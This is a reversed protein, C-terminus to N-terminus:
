EKCLRDTDFLRSLSFGDPITGNNLHFRLKSWCPKASLQTEFRIRPVRTGRAAIKAKGESGGLSSPEGPTTRDRQGVVATKHGALKAVPGASRVCRPCGAPGPLRPASRQTSEQRMVLFYRARRPSDRRTQEPCRRLLRRQRCPTRAPSIRLSPRLGHPYFQRAM